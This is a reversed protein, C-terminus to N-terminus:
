EWNPYLLAGNGFEDLVEVAAVRPLREIAAIMALAGADPGLKEIVAYIDRRDPAAAAELTEEGRWVRVCGKYVPTWGRRLAPEQTYLTVRTMSEYIRVGM